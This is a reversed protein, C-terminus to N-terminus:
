FPISDDPMGDDGVADQSAAPDGSPASDRNSGDKDMPEKMLVSVRGEADPLPLADFVLSFGGKDLPFAAGIKLWYTKGSKNPRPSILDFRKTM